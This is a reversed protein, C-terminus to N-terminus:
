LLLIGSIAKTEWSTLVDAMFRMVALGAILAACGTRIWSAYTRESALVTRDSALEVVKSAGESANNEAM